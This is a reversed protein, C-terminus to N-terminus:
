YGRALDLMTFWKAGVFCDFLEAIKPLSYLFDNSNDNAEKYDIAFCWSRNKKQVIVLIVAYLSRSPRIIRAKLLEDIEKKLWERKHYGLVRVGSRIPIDNKM